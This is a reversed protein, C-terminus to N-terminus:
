SAGNDRPNRDPTADDDNDDDTDCPEGDPTRALAVAGDTVESQASAPGSANGLGTAVERIIGKQIYIPRVIKRIVPLMAAFFLAGVIVIVGALMVAHSAGAIGGGFHRAAFGAMLNGFPAVGIFAVTFLSMVRGRKDDDALTQLLTNASAFNALMGFGAIPAILLSLWLQRSLAFALLAAGFGVGAIAIVRGLGVVSRRSALFFACALAGLGSAAMLLGLTQSDKGPGGLGKAFVPMLINLAPMGTLSILAMLLLLVRIPVSGWAYVVGEHLEHLVSRTRPRPEHRNVRMLLLCAIVAIYSLGDALFCIGPGVYYLLFGGAAPGLLRATHVMTSNLAIANALDDRNEVMEVTFAQRAPMDFCNILGQLFALGVIAWVNVDTLMLAALALSQCMSLIQTVVLIDRKNWRDVLVGGFPALFFLPIQGAFAVTGLWREDATLHYVLWIMAIQTLFTGILSIGQGIFFLRYNRSRLARFLHASRDTPTHNLLPSAM